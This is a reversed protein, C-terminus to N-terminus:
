NGMRWEESCYIVFLDNEWVPKYKNDRIFEEFYRIRKLNYVYPCSAKEGTDSVTWDRGVPQCKQALVVPLPLTAVAQDLHKKFNGSSYCWIWSSGAYPKTETLYHIMPLSEFCLLYDGKDVYKSLSSLLENIADAKRKDTFVTFKGNDARYRKALRNGNDDYARHSAYFLCSAVYLVCLIIFFTHGSYNRGTKIQYNIYRFVHGASVFTGLWICFSGMSRVGLDSGSPLLFMVLLSAINLLTLPKNKRDAFCSVLLPFLILAYYKENNLDFVAIFVTFVAGWSIISFLRLLNNKSLNYTYLFFFTTFVFISLYTYINKWNIFYSKILFFIGHNSDESMGADLVNNVISQRFIDLHGLFYMACLVSLIGSCMGLFGYLLNKKLRVANKEYYYDAFLLLGLGLMSINTLRSFINVGCFFAGWFIPRYNNESNLGKLILYVAISILLATLYNHDFVTVGFNFLVAFFAALIILGSRFQKEVALYTFYGTFFLAIIALIRFSLIGGFGFLINWVGGVLSPLYYLFQYEVTEPAHFIQQFFTLVFGEDCLDFGQLALIFEYGALAALAATRYGGRGKQM